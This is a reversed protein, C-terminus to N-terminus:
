HFKGLRSKGLLFKGFACKHNPLLNQLACATIPIPPRASHRSWGLLRASRSPCVQSTGAQFIACKPLSLYPFYGQSTSTKSFAKQFYVRLFTALIAGGWMISEVLYTSLGDLYLHLSHNRIFIFSPSSYFGLSYILIYFSSLLCIVSNCFLNVLYCM